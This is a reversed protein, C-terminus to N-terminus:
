DDKGWRGWNRPERLWSRVEKETPLPREPM